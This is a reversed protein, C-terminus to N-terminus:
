ANWVDDALGSANVSADGVGYLISMVVLLPCGLSPVTIDRAESALKCVLFVDPLQPCHNSKRQSNNV